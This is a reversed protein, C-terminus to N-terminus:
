VLGNLQLMSPFSHDSTQSLSVSCASAASGPQQQSHQSLNSMETTGLMGYVSFCRGWGEAFAGFCLSCGRLSLGCVGGVLGGNSTEMTM